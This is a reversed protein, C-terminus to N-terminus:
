EPAKPPSIGQLPALGQPPAMGEPSISGFDPLPPPGGLNGPQRLERPVFYKAADEASYSEPVIIDSRGDTAIEDAVENPKEAFASEPIEKNVLIVTLEHDTNVSSSIGENNAATDPSASSVSNASTNELPVSELVTIGASSDPDSGGGSTIWWGLLLLVLLVVIIKQM